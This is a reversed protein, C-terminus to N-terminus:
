SVNSVHDIQTERETTCQSQINTPSAIISGNQKSYTRPTAKDGHQPLIPLNTTPGSKQIAAKRLMMQEKRRLSDQSGNDTGISTPSGPIDITADLYRVTSQRHHPQSSGEHSSGRHSRLIGRTPPGNGDKPSHQPTTPAHLGLDPEAPIPNTSKTSTLDHCPVVHTPSSSSDNRSLGSNRTLFSIFLKWRRM